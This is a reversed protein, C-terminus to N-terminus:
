FIFSVRFDCSSDVHVLVPSRLGNFFESIHKGNVMTPTLAVRRVSLEETFSVHIERCVVQICSFKLPILTLDEDSVSPWLVEAMANPNAKVTM